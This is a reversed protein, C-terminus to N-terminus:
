PRAAAAVVVEPPPPPAARAARRDQYRWWLGVLAGFAFGGVHAAWAVNSRGGIYLAQQAIFLVLLWWAKVKRLFVPGLFIITKIRTSPYCLLYAGMVAAIAGSAGVVPVTSNPDVAVHAGTAVIGGILYLLLYRWWGKRDEINNGFVWLFLLNGFLHPISGHLFMTALLALYVQKGPNHRPGDDSTDCASGDSGDVYTDRHEEVTLPRGQVLECPIAANDVAFRLDETRDVREVVGNEDFDFSRSPQILFFVAICAVILGVTVWPFRRLPNEDAMPIMAAGAQQPAVHVRDM